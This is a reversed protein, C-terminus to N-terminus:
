AAADARGRSLALAILPACAFTEGARRAAIRVAAAMARDDTAEGREGTLLVAVAAEVLPRPTLWRGRAFLDACEEVIEVGLIVVRECARRALLTGAQWIAHRAADAAGILIAYPGTLAFEIAVEAPVASPATYPFHLAGAGAAPELFARNSAAYATATVYVLATGSGRLVERGLGGDGLMAEVAAVGLLCERTARRFRDGALAPRALAILDRGAAAERADAPLAAVGTGWGTLM